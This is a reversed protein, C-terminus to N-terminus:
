HPLRTIEPRNFDGEITVIDDLIVIGGLSSVSIEAFKKEGMLKSEFHRIQLQQLLSCSNNDSLIAYLGQIVNKPTNDYLWTKWSEVDQEHIKQAFTRNM